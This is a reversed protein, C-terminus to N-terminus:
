AFITKSLRDFSVRSAPNSTYRRCGRERLSFTRPVRGHAVTNDISHWPTRDRLIANLHTLLKRAVAILAVM